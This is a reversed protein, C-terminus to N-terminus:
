STQFLTHPVLTQKLQFHTPDVNKRHFTAVLKGDKGVHFLWEGFKILVLLADDGPVVVLKWPLRSDCRDCQMGIQQVPLEIRCNFTWVEREFDQLLWIDVTKMYDVIVTGLMGDKEFLNACDIVVPACMERVSESTTNFVYITKNESEVNTPYWHLSGRFYPESELNIADPWEIQRPPQGSGLALVYSGPTLKHDADPNSLYLLVRYEGTPPHPYMGLLTWKHGLHLPLCAYQRTMPNCVFLDTDDIRLILMGDCSAVLHFFAFDDGLNLFNQGCIDFSQFQDATARTPRHDFIDLENGNELLPLIPQRAHHALLFDHTSTARRWARCVACCRLLAKPSLRVLIEWIVIEDPLGRLSLMAGARAAKNM